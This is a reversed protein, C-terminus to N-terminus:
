RDIVEGSIRLEKQLVTIADSDKEYQSRESPIIEPPRTQTEKPDTHKIITHM